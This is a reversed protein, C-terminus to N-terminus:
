ATYGMHKAYNEAFTINSKANHIAQEKATKQCKSTAKGVVFDNVNSLTYVWKGSSLLEYRHICNELVAEVLEDSHKSPPLAILEPTPLDLLFSEFICWMRLHIYKSRLLYYEEQNPWQEQPIHTIYQRLSQAYKVQQEYNM